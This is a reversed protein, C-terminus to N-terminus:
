QGIGLEKNVAELEKTIAEFETTKDVASAGLNSSLNYYVNQLKILILRMDEIGANRAKMIDYCKEIYPLSKSYLNAAQADLETQEKRNTTQGARDKVDQAQLIYIIGMGELAKECNPDVNLAQQYASEANTYDKQDADAYLSGKVSYLNCANSPDNAIAQDIYDIAENKKGAKIFENILNPTFYQNSPFKQAGARLVEMFKVSDKMQLYESALLEYPDSEKYTSNVVYGENIINNLLKVSRDQNGSQIATIVAYYKITQLLSDAVVIGGDSDYKFIEDKPMTWYREFFDAAKAYDKKDNYYAGANILYPYSDKLNKIIDKRFKNKVKGKEDPIEGLEDAKLYPMYLNYLGEYMKVEDAAKGTIDQTMQAERQKNFAEYEIDGAVKWAEPDNMTESNTLAPKILARAEETNKKIESKAEKIAKKQAFSFTAFVGLTVVLLIRKM